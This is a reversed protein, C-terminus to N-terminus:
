KKVLEWDYEGKKVFKFMDPSQKFQDTLPYKESFDDTSDTFTFLNTSDTIRINGLSAIQETTLIDTINIEGINSEPEMFLYDAKIDGRKNPYSILSAQLGKKYFYDKISTLNKGKDFASTRLARGSNDYSTETRKIMTYKGLSIEWRHSFVEKKDARHGYVTLSEKNISGSPTVSVAVKALLLGDKLYQYAVLSNRPSFINKEERKEIDGQNVMRELEQLLQKGSFKSLHESLPLLADQPAQTIMKSPSGSLDSSHDDLLGIANSSAPIVNKHNRKEFFNGIDQLEIFLREAEQKTVNLSGDEDAKDFLMKIYALMKKRLEPSQVKGISNEKIISNIKNFIQQNTHDDFGGTSVENIKESIATREHTELEFSSM